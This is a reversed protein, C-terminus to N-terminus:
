LGRNSLGEKGSSYTRKAKRQDLSHTYSGKKSYYFYFPSEKM